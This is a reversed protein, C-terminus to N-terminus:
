TNDIHMQINKGISSVSASVGGRAWEFSRHSTCTNNRQRCLVYHLRVQHYSVESIFPCWFYSVHMHPYLIRYRYWHKNNVYQRSLFLHQWFMSQVKYERAVINLLLLTTPWLTLCSCVVTPVRTFFPYEQLLTPM